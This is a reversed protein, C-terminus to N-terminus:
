KSEHSLKDSIGSSSVLSEFPSQLKVLNLEALNSTYFPPNIRYFVLAVTTLESGRQKSNPETLREPALYERCGPCDPAVELEVEHLM